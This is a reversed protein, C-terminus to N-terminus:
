ILERRERAPETGIPLTHIPLVLAPDIPRGDRRIEIHLHPGTSRGTSGSRAITQGATISQGAVVTAADLHGYVSVQGEGHDIQVVKGYGGQRGVFIVEGDAVGAVPTGVPVAIDIGNHFRPQSSFPDKRMGYPSTLRGVAPLVFDRESGRQGTPEPSIAAISIAAPASDLDIPNPPHAHPVDPPLAATTQHDRPTSTLATAQTQGAKGLDIRDGVYIVDPNEIGNSQAVHYVQRYIDSTTFSAGSDNLHQKVLGSLTDGAHVVRIHGGGEGGADPQVDMHRNLSARFREGSAADVKPQERGPSGPTPSIGNIHDM